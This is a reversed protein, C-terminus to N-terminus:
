FLGFVIEDGKFNLQLKKSTIISEIDSGIYSVIMWVKTIDNAINSVVLWVKNIDKAGAAVNTFDSNIYLIANEHGIVNYFTETWPYNM